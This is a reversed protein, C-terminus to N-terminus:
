LRCDATQLNASRANTGAIEYREPVIEAGSNSALIPLCLSTLCWDASMNAHHKCTAQKRQKPALMCFIWLIWLTLFGWITIMVSDGARHKSKRYDSKRDNTMKVITM